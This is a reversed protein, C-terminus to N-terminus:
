RGFQRTISGNNLSSLLNVKRAVLELKAASTGAMAMGYDLFRLEEETATTIVDTLAYCTQRSIESAV